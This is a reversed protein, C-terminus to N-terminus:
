HTLHFSGSFVLLSFFVLSGSPQSGGLTKKPPVGLMGCCGKKKRGKLAALFCTGAFSLCGFSAAAIPIAKFSVVQLPRKIKPTLSWTENGLFDTGKFKAATSLEAFLQDSKTPKTPFEKMGWFTFTWLDLGNATLRTDPHWFRGLGGGESTQAQLLHFARDM